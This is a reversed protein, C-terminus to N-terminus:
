KVAQEMGVHAHSCPAIIMIGAPRDMMGGDWDCWCLSVWKVSVLINMARCERVQLDKSFILFFCHCSVGHFLGAASITLCFNAVDANNIYM